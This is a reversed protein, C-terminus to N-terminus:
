EDYTGGHINIFKVYVGKEVLSRGVEVGFYAIKENGGRHHEVTIEEATDDQNKVALVVAAVEAQYEVVPEVGRYIGKHSVPFAGLPHREVVATGHLSSRRKM